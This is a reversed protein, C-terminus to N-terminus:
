VNFPALIELIIKRKVDLAARGLCLAAFAYTKAQLIFPDITSKVWKM